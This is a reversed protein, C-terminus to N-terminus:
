TPRECDLRVIEYSEEGFPTIWLLTVLAICQITDGGFEYTSARVRIHSYRSIPSKPSILNFSTM